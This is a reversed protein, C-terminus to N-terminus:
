KVKIKQKKLAKIVNRVSVLQGKGGSMVQGIVMNLHHLSIKRKDMLKPYNWKLQDIITDIMQREIDPDIDLPDKLGEGNGRYQNASRTGTIKGTTIEGSFVGIPLPGGGGPHALGTIGGDIKELITRLKM